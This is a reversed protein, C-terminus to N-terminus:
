FKELRQKRFEWPPVPNRQRWIGVHKQQALQAAHQVDQWVPCKAAFQKYPWALGANVQELQLLRTTTGQKVRVLAVQRHYRDEDVIDLLVRNGAEALLRELNQKSKQGLAQNKEPADICAFRVHLDSGKPNVVTLTDGDSVRKVLYQSSSFLAECGLLSWTIVVISLWLILKRTLRV